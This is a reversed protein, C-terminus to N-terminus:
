DLDSLSSLVKTKGQEYEKEGEKIIELVDDETLETQSPVFHVLLHEIRELKDLIKEETQTTMKSKDYRREAFTM